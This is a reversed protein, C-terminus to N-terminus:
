HHGAGGCGPALRQLLDVAIRHEGGKEGVVVRFRHLAEELAEPRPEGDEHLGLQPRVQERLARMVANRDGEGVGAHRLLRCAAVPAPARERRRADAAEGRHARLALGIRLAQAREARRAHLYGAVELEVDREIGRLERGAAFPLRLEAPLNKKERTRALALFSDQEFRYFSFAIKQHHDHGAMGLAEVFNRLPGIAAAAAVVHGVPLM